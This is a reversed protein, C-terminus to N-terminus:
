LHGVILFRAPLVIHVRDGAAYVQQRLVRVSEVADILLLHGLCLLFFVRDDLFVPILDLVLILPANGGHGTHGPCLFQKGAQTGILRHFLQPLGNQIAAAHPVVGDRRPFVVVAAQVLAAVIQVAQANFLQVIGGAVACVKRYAHNVLRLEAAASLGTQLADAEVGVNGCLLTEDRGFAALRLADYISGLRQAILSLQDVTKPDAKLRALGHFPVGIM